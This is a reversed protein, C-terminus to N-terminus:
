VQSGVLNGAQQIDGEPLAIRLLETRDTGAVHRGFNSPPDSAIILTLPVTLPLLAFTARGPNLNALPPLGLIREGFSARPIGLPNRTGLPVPAM